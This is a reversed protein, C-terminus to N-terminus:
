LSEDRESGRNTASIIRITEGREAHSVVVLRDGTTRGIIVFRFEDDPVSPDAVTLSLPDGFVTRAEEFSVGHKAVNVRAKKADWDFRHGMGQDSLM